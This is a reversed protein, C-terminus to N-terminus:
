RRKPKKVSEKIIKSIKERGIATEKFLDSLNMM